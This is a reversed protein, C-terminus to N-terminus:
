PTHYWAVDRTVEILRLCTCLTSVLLVRLCVSEHLAPLFQLHGVFAVITIANQTFTAAVHWFTHADLVEPELSAAVEM